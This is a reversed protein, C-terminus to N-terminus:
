PRAGGSKPWRAEYAQATAGASGEVEDRARGPRRRAERVVASGGRSPRTRREDRREEAERQQDRDIRRRGELPRQDAQQRAERVPEIRQPLDDVVRQTEEGEREGHQCEGAPAGGHERVRRQGDREGDRDRDDRGPEGDPAPGVEVVEGPQPDVLRRERHKPHRERCRDDERDHRVEHPRELADRAPDQEQPQEAADEDLRGRRAAGESREEDREDGRRHDAEREAGRGSVRLRVGDGRRETLEADLDLLELRGVPLGGADEDRAPEGRRALGQEHLHVPAVGVVRLQELLDPPRRQVGVVARAQAAAPELRDLVLREDRQERLPGTHRRAVHESGGLRRRAVGHEHEAVGGVGECGKRRVVHRGRPRPRRNGRESCRADGMVADIGVRQHREALLDPEDVEVAGRDRRPRLVKEDVTRLEVRRERREDADIAGDRGRGRREARLAQGREERVELGRAEPRPQRAREVRGVDVDVVQAVRRRRGGVDLRRREDPEPADGPARDDLDPEEGERHRGDDAVEAPEVVAVERSATWSADHPQIARPNRSACVGRRM